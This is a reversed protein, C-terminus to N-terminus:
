QLVDAGDTPMRIVPYVWEAPRVGASRCNEVYRAEDGRPKCQRAQVAVCDVLDLTKRAARENLWRGVAVLPRPRVFPAVIGPDRETGDDPCTCDVIRIKGRVHSHCRSM